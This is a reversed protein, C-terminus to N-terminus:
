KQAKKPSSASHRNPFLSQLSFVSVIQIKPPKKQKEQTDLEKQQITMDSSWANNMFM